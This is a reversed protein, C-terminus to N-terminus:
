DTVSFSVTAERVTKQLEVPPEDLIEGLHEEHQFRALDAPDSTCYAYELESAEFRV